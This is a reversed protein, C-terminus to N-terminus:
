KKVKLSKISTWAGYYNTGSMTKLARVKVQYTKGGKLFKLRKLTSVVTTKKWTSTGKVRYAANHDRHEHSMVVADAELPPFDYPIYESYPDM